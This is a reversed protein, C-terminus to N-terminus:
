SVTVVICLPVEVGVLMLLYIASLNLSINFIEVFDMYQTGTHDLWYCSWTSRISYADDAEHM